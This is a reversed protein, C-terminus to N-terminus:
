LSGSQVVATTRNALANLGRLTLLYVEVGSPVRRGVALVPGVLRRAAFLAAGGALVVASLLLPLNWGHWVVRRAPEADPPLSEGGATMLRDLLGPVVGFLVTLAGLLAAPAVFAPRPPPVPRAPTADAVSDDASRGLLGWVVHASYAVTLVSAAAIPALVLGAHAFSGPELGAFADEKAVFGFMLPFGAMSAASVVAIASVPGWGPGPRRLLRIDRTGAQHDVIGVVMFLAAKFLAHALVLESADVVTETTGLGFMVVMFGLQSVTGYALVLKLDFQRMARLGGAVMTVLGVTVVLPRWLWEDTSAPSMRGVLYVGAKVMTACRLFCRDPTHAVRAGPLLPVPVAGVELVRRGAGARPRRDRGHRRAVRGPGRAAVPHRRGGPGAPRLRRADGPRRCRHDAAGPPRRGPGQGVRPRQRHAPVVHDLDAGLLRVPRDHRGGPGPGADIGLVPRAPRPAPRP